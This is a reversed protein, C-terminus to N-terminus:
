TAPTGTRVVSWELLRHQGLATLDSFRSIGGGVAEAQWSKLLGYAELQAQVTNLDSTFLEVYNRSMPIFMNEKLLKILVEDHIGIRPSGFQPGLLVFLNKWSIKTVDTRPEYETRARIWEKYAYRITLHGDFDVLQEAGEFSPKASARLTQNEVRLSNIQALLDESAAADARMWGKAPYDSMAKHLSIIVKARLDERSGWFRILRNKSIAKRFLALKEQLAQDLDTKGVPISGVDNHVFALVTKKQQV